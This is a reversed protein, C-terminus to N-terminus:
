SLIRPLFVIILACGASFRMPLTMIHAPAAMIM